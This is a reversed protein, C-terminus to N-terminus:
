SVMLLVSLTDAVTSTDLVVVVVVTSAGMTRGSPTVLESGELTRTWTTGVALSDEDEDDDLADDLAEDSLSSSLALESVAELSDLSSLAVLLSFPVLPLSDVISSSVVLSLSLVLEVVLSTPTVVPM